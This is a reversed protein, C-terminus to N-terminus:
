VFTRMILALQDSPNTVGSGQLQAIMNLLQEIQVPQQNQVPNSGQQASNGRDGQQGGIPDYARFDGGVIADYLKGPLDQFGKKIQGKEYSYRNALESLNQAQGDNQSPPVNPGGDYEQSPAQPGPPQGTPLGGGPVTVSQPQRPAPSMNTAVQRRVDNVIEGPPQRMPNPPASFPQASAPQPIGPQRGIIGSQVLGTIEAERAEPSQPAGYGSYQSQPAQPAAPGGLLNDVYGTGASPPAGPIGATRTLDNPVRDTIAKPARDVLSQFANGVIQPSGYANNPDAPNPPMSGPRRSMEGFANAEQLARFDGNPDGPPSRYQSYQSRAAAAAAARRQEDARAQTAALSQQQLGGFPNTPTAPASLGPQVGARAAAAAQQARARDNVARIGANRNGAFPDNQFNGYPQGQAPGIGPPNAAAVATRRAADKIVNATRYSDTGTASAGAPAHLGNPDTPNAPRAAPFGTNRRMADVDGQVRSADIQGKARNGAYPYSPAAPAQLSGVPTYSVRPDGAIRGTRSPPAAPAAPAKPAPRSPDRVQTASSKAPAAPAAKSVNTNNPMGSAVKANGAATGTGTPASRKIGDPSTPGRPNGPTTKSVTTNQSDTKAATNSRQAGGATSSGRSAGGGGSSQTGSGGGSSASSTKGGATRTDKTETGEANAM